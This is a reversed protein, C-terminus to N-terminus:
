GCGIDMRIRRLCEDPDPLTRTALRLRGKRGADGIGYASLLEGLKGGPTPRPSVPFRLAQQWAQYASALSGFPVLAGEAWREWPLAPADDGDPEAYIREPSHEHRAGGPRLGLVMGAECCAELWLRADYPNLTRKIIGKRAANDRPIDRRPDFGSVDRSLLFRMFAQRGGGDMEEMLEAFYHHDGQCRESVDLVWYRADGEEIPAPTDHNSAIFFNLAAPFPMAPVNKTDIVIKSATSLDKLRDASRTDGGFLAENLFVYGKGRLGDNFRGTVHEINATWFAARGWISPLLDEFRAM